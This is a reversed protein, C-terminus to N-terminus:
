VASSIIPVCISRRVPSILECRRAIRSSKFRPPCCLGTSRLMRRFSPESSATEDTPEGIVSGDPARAPTATMIRSTESCRCSSSFSRCACFSSAIPLRAPPTACSKLLRRITIRLAAPIASEAGSGLTVRSFSACISVAASCAEASVVCNSANLRWCTSSGSGVSRSEITSSVSPRSSRNSPSPM